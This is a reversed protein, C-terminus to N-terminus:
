LRVAPQPGVEAATSGDRAGVAPDPFAFKQDPQASPNGIHYPGQVSGTWSVVWGDRASAALPSAVFLSAMVLRVLSRM